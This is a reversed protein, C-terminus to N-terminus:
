FGFCYHFILLFGLTYKKKRRRYSLGLLMYSFWMFSIFSFHFLGLWVLFPFFCGISMLIWCWALICCSYCARWILDLCQLFSCYRSVVVLLLRKATFFILYWFANCWSSQKNGTSIFRQNRSDLWVHGSTSLIDQSKMGLASPLNFCDWGHTM